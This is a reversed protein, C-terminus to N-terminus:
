KAKKASLKEKLKEIQKERIDLLSNIRKIERDKLVVMDKYVQAHIWHGEWSTAMAPEGQIIVPKHLNTTTMRDRGPRNNWISQHM